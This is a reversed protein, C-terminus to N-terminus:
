NACSFPVNYYKTKVQINAKHVDRPKEKQTCVQKMNGLGSHKRKGHKLCSLDSIFNIWFYKFFLWLHILIVRISIVIKRVSM